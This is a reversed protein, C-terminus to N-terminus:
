NFRKWLKEFENRYSRIANSDQLLLLNEYNHDAASRTWNYSGTLVYEQDFLAFKHHMHVPTDDVAVQIGARALADIDSGLDETKDDDSIIRIHKGMRHAVLLEDTIHNDSITFVCIAIEARASRIRTKIAERCATGPSFYVQSTGGQSEGPNLLKGCEYLWDVLTLPQAQHAHKRAISQAEHWILQREHRDPRIRALAARLEKREAKQMHYDQFSQQLLKNIHELRSM